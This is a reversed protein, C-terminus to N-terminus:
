GGPTAVASEPLWPTCLGWGYEGAVGRERYRGDIKRRDARGGPMYEGLYCTVFEGPPIAEQTCM